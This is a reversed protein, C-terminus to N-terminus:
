LNALKPGFILVATVVAFIAAILVAGAATDKAKEALHHYEPSALDVLFEIATNIAEAIWVLVIAGIIFLWETTKLRVWFGAGIIVLTAAFHIQANKQTSIVIWIGKFAFRFSNKRGKLYKGM